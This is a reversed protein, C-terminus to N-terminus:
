DPHGGGIYSQKEYVVVEYGKAALLMSVALGGPGAGIVTVKKSRSM